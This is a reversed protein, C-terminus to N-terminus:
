YLAMPVNLSPVVCFTVFEAFQTEESLLTAVMTEPPLAVPCCVPLVVIVAVSPETLAFVAKSTVLADRAEMSMLGGVSCIAECVELLSSATPVNESPPLCSRVEVAEQVEDLALTAVTPLCVPITDPADGPVVVMVATNLPTTPEVATVTVFAVRVETAIVGFLRATARPVETFNLAM